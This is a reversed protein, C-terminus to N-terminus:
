GNAQNAKEVEIEAPFRIQTVPHTKRKRVPPLKMYDGFEWLLWKKYAAQAQFDYGEFKVKEYKRYWQRRYGRLHNPLPFTLTRVYKTEKKNSFRQLCQYIDAINNKTITYLAGYVWRQVICKATKRGVASWMMKRVAFCFFSHVRRMVLGDPVGDRPFVDLFIGQEYPMGEQNERLFVSDKRRVKGYGWRYGPTNEIDQFYFREKDLDTRCAQQFKKYDQRLMSIDADDDWPIFGGHRVAGLLTGGTLSYHIHNKRCVRDVELLIELEVAQLKRLNEKDLVIM